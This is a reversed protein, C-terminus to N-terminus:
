IPRVRIIETLHPQVWRHKNWIHDLGYNKIVLSMLVIRNDHQVLGNCSFRHKEHGFNCGNDTSNSECTWSM